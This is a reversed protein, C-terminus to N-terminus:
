TISWEWVFATESPPHSIKESYLCKFLPWGQKGLILLGKVLIPAYPNTPKAFDHLFFKTGAVFPIYFIPLDISNGPISEKVFSLGGEHETGASFILM